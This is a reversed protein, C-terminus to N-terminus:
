TSQVISQYQFPYAGHVLHASLCFCTDDPRFVVLGLADNPDDETHYFDDQSKSKDKCKQPCIGIISEDFENTGDRLENYSNKFANEWLGSYVFGGVSNKFRGNENRHDNHRQNGPSHELQHCRVAAITHLFAFVHVGRNRVSLLIWVVVRLVPQLSRVGQASIM